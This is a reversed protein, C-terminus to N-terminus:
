KERMLSGGADWRSSILIIIKIVREAQDVSQSKHKVILLTTSPVSGLPGATPAWM